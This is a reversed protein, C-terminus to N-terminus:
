RLGSLPARLVSQGSHNPNGDAPELSVDLFRHRGASAPLKTHVRAGPGTFAAVPVADAISSYLWVQYRAKTRLGFLSLDLRDDAIRATGHASGGGLVTLPAPPKPAPSRKAPGSGGGHYAGVAVLLVVAAGIALIPLLVRRLSLGGAAPSSGGNRAQADWSEPPLEALATQVEPGPPRSTSGVEAAVRQIADDRRRAVESPETKLLEALDEDRIGRRLSLDLLARAGPDLEELAATLRDPAM